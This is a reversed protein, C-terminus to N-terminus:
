IKVIVVGFTHTRLLMSMGEVISSVQLGDAEQRELRLMMERFGKLLMAEPM